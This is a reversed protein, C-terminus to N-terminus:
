VNDREVLDANVSMLELQGVMSLRSDREPLLHLPELPEKEVASDLGLVTLASTKSFHLVKALVRFVAHAHDVAELAQLPVLPDGEVVALDLEALGM